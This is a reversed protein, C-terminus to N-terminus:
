NAVAADLACRFGICPLLIESIISTIAIILLFNDQEKEAIV